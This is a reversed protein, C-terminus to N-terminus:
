SSTDGLDLAPVSQVEISGEEVAPLEDSCRCDEVELRWGRLKGNTGEETPYLSSMASEQLNRSFRIGAHAFCRGFLPYM